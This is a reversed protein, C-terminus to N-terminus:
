REKKDFTAMVNAPVAFFDAGLRARAGRANVGKPGQVYFQVSGDAKVEHTLFGDPPGSTTWSVFIIAEKNFDVLDILGQASAKGLTPASLLFSLTILCILHFSKQKM